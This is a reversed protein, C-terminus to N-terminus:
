GSSNGQVMYRYHSAIIQEVLSTGSPRMGVIFIPTLSFDCVHALPLDDNLRESFLAKIKACADKERAIYYDIERRRLRNGELLLEFHKAYDGARERANALTFYYNKLDANTSGKRGIQRELFDIEANSMQSCQDLCSRIFHAEAYDPILRIAENCSELAADFLGLISQM